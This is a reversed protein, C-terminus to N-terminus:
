RSHNLLRKKIDSMLPLLRLIVAGLSFRKAVLLNCLPKRELWLRNALSNDPTACSDLWELQGHMRRNLELILLVGPSWQRYAEDYALKFAYGGRGHLFVAIMAIPQQDIHLALVKLHNHEFANRAITRFFHEGAVTSQLATKSRGKWGSAELTLFDDIWRDVSTPNELTEWSQTGKESLRRLQRRFEKRSKKSMSKKLYDETGTAPKYVARQYNQELTKWSPNDFAAKWHTLFNGEGSMLNFKLFSYHQGDELWTVLAQLSQNVFERHLLPTALFCHPHQWLALHKVPLHHYAKRVELPFFGVLQQHGDQRDKAMVLLFITAANGAFNELAPLLMAPEYFPNPEISAGGLEDMESQYQRLSDIDHVERVSFELHSAAAAPRRESENFSAPIEM